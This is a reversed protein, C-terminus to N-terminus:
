HMSARAAPDGEALGERPLRTGLGPSRRLPCGLQCPAGSAEAGHKPGVQRGLRRLRAHSVCRWGWASLGTGHRKHWAAVRAAPVAEAPSLSHQGWAPITGTTADPGTGPLHKGPGTGVSARATAEFPSHLMQAGAWAFVRSCATSAAPLPATAGQAHAATRPQPACHWWWPITHAVTHACPRAHAVRTWRCGNVAALTPTRARPHTGTPVGHAHLRPRAHSRSRHGAHWARPLTRAHQHTHSHHRTHRSPTRARPCATGSAHTHSGARPVTGRTVSEERKRELLGAVRPAEPAERMTRQTVLVRSGGAAGLAGPRPGAGGGHQLPQAPTPQAEGTGFCPGPWGPAGLTVWSALGQLELEEPAALSHHSPQPAQCPPLARPLQCRAPSCLPLKSHPLAAHGGVTSHCNPSPSHHQPPPCM